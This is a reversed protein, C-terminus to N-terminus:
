SIDETKFRMGIAEGVDRFLEWQPYDRLLERIANKFTRDPIYHIIETMFIHWAEGDVDGESGIGSIDEKYSLAGYFKEWTEPTM